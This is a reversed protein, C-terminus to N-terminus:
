DVVFVYVYLNYLQFYSFSDFLTFVLFSCKTFLILHLCILFYIILYEGTDGEGYEAM